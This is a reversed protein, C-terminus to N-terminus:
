VILVLSGLTQGSESFTKFLQRFHLIRMEEVEAELKIHCTRKYMLFIISLYINSYQFFTLLGYKWKNKVLKQLFELKTISVLLM